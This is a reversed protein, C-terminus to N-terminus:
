QPVLAHEVAFQILALRDTVCLKKMLRGRYTDITHRSLSLRQAIDGSSHGSVTLHLVERERASLSELPSRPVDSSLLGDILVTAVDASLYREGAAVAKVAHVLENAAAEKLVYGHAGARLARFIHETSKRVTLIVMRTQPLVILIREMADIGNLDPMELDMVIVTPKLRAAAIVAQRGTSASGIVRMQPQSNLLASLGERVIGHDDVILITTLAAACHHELLRDRRTSTFCPTQRHQPILRWYHYYDRVCLIDLPVLRYHQRRKIQVAFETHRKVARIFRPTPDHSM